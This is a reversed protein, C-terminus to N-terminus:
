LKFYKHIQYFLNSKGSTTTKLKGPSFAGLQSLFFSIYHSFLFYDKVVNLEKIPLLQFM